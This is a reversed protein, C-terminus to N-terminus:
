RLVVGLQDVFAKLIKEHAAQVESDRLTTEPSQYVLSFVLGRHGAPIKEGRYEEKFIISKL